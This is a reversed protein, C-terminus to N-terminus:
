AINRRKLIWGNIEVIEDADLAPLPDSAHRFLALAPVALMAQVIRRRTLEPLKPLTM